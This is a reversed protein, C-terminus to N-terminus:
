RVLAKKRVIRHMGLALIETMSVALGEPIVAVAVAIAMEFMEVLEEGRWLGIAMIAGTITVVVYMLVRALKDLKIQLPTAEEEAMVLSKAIKGMETENGTRVVLMEGLGSSVSTGMYVFNVAGKDQAAPPILMDFSKKSVGEMVSKSVPRSEGTLIAENVVMLESELVVGDAPVSGGTDLYCVDGPVIEKMLVEMRKGERRVIVKPKLYNKLAELSRAAKREQWFGLLANVVVVMFIVSAEVWERLFVTAIGALFLVYILPSKFQSVLLDLSSFERREEFENMGFRKLRSKAESISLGKSFDTVPLSKM